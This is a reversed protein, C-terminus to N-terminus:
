HYDELDVDGIAREGVLTFTLRWNRSLTMAFTESRDGKLAHCNM